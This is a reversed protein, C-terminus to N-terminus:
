TEQAVNRRESHKASVRTHLPSQLIRFFRILRDDSSLCVSGSTVVWRHRPQEVLQRCQEYILHSGFVASSGIKKNPVDYPFTNCATVVQMVHPIGPSIPITEDHKPCEPIMILM